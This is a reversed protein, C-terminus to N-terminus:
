GLVSKLRETQEDKPFDRMKNATKTYFEHTEIFSIFKNMWEKENEAMGYERQENFLARAAEPLDVRGLFDYYSDFLIKELKNTPEMKEFSVSLLHCIKLTQQESYNFRPLIDRAFECRYDENRRYERLYGSDLFVAATRIILMEEDSLNEARGLLEVNACLAITHKLNHFYLNKPLDNELRQFVNEEMDQLRLLQLKIFFLNNPILGKLDESLEPRIGKVFYMDINGKYKVPMMGRYECAFFDQVLEYTSGSINIKGAEGSSEMRSATNVTDGWIDYSLKKQGVVGAIVPGTHIGIRLDWVKANDQQLQKMYQVMELAALIVEVPNTRNKDPIGGACMYADGITKIKEINFKEVVSDFKFFFKDLEDVLIEPNMQEAIKTFGEIDSFLVTVLNYKHSSAKGTLKLEDATDKPLLNALLEESKEKQRLLEETRANIIKELKNRERAFRMARHRILMNVFASLILIYFSYAWWTRYFPPIFKFTFSTIESIEGKQDKVRLNFKYEKGPLNTYEKFNVNSWASWDKDFGDLKFQFQANNESEYDTTAFDFRISNIPLSFRRTDNKYIENNSGYYIISDSNWTVKEILAYLYEHEKQKVLTDLRLVGNFGGFWIAGKEDPYITKVHFDKKRQLPLSKYHYKGTDEQYISVSAEGINQAKNFANYWLNRFRDEVIPYLWFKGESFDMGILKDPYFIGKSHNYRYVGHSTLFVTGSSMKSVIIWTYDDPLGHGTSYHEVLSESFPEKRTIKYVGNFDSAAWLIEDNEEAISLINDTILPAKVPETWKGKIYEICGIGDKLGLFVTQPLEESAVATMLEGKYLFQGSFNNIQYIGAESSVFLLNGLAYFNFCSNRIHDVQLIRSFLNDNDTSLYFVGQSTAFYITGNHRIISSVSGRLGSNRDFYSIPSPIEIRSLGNNHLVWLNDSHDTYVASVNDELLGHDRRIHNLLKGSPEMVLLGTRKTGFIYNGDSLINGTSYGYNQFMQSLPTHFPEVVNNDVLFFGADNTKVLYKGSFPLIDEVNRDTFFKGAPFIVEKGKKYLRIGKDPSSTLLASDIVFIKPSTQKFTELVRVNEGNWLLLHNKSAFYVENGIAKLSSIQGLPLLSDPLLHTLSVFEAQNITNTSLYGFENLGGAFIIKEANAAMLPRGSFKHQKWSSGNYELIGNFNGVFIIGQHNQAISYSKSNFSYDKLFFVQIYPSGPENAYLSYTAIKITLFIATYLFIATVKHFIKLFNMDQPDALHWQFSLRKLNLVKINVIM